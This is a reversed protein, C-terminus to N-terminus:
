AMALVKLGIAKEKDYVSNFLTLWLDLPPAFLWNIPLSCLAFDHLTLPTNISLHVPLLLSPCQSQLTKQCPSSTWKTIKSASFTWRAAKEKEIVLCAKLNFIQSLLFRSNSSLQIRWSLRKFPLKHSSSISSTLQYSKCFTSM